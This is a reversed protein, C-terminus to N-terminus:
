NQPNGVSGESVTYAVCLGQNTFPSGNADTVTTWGGKMCQEKTTAVVYPEFNYATNNFSVLDTEVNYSPNYSGINVGFGIAVAAPCMTKIQALTYLTAGGNGALITGNSCTITKTSWLLGADVHWLQWTNPIVTGNEYPEYVFTTFGSTGNLYVPLQYSVDGGAFPASNQKAWYSLETLDAVSTNAAHMYQAKAANTADTTLQLAGIGAPATADVIFGVNGGIRTDATTWGQPATPTVVITAAAYAMTAMGGLMVAGAAAGVLIKKINM